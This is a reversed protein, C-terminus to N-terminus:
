REHARPAFFVALAGAAGLVPPLFGGGALLLAVSAFLLWVGRGRGRVTVVIAVAVLAASITTVIGIVLFNTPLLSMAPFCNANGAPPCDPGAFANFVVGPPVADGQLIEGYGHFAGLAAAFSGLIVTLLLLARM